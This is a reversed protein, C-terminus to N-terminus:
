ATKRILNDTVVQQMLAFVMQSNMRHGSKSASFEGILDKGSLALDGIMDLMKHRACEDSFRLTNEIPGSESFVLVDQHTVRSGLGQRQLQEAESQLLFTRAPAIERIFTERDFRATVTQAGICPENPYDLEYNFITTNSRCAIAQIWTDGEAVRTQERVVLTEKPADQQERGATLLSEVFRISSGDMGPMEARNVHVECNDIQLGALAAMVHEVMEVACGNDVLTTRRPGPVRNQILAHIRPAGALDTRIFVIGTQEDAPRFEITVDQGSWFGFGSVSAPKALTSQQRIPQHL